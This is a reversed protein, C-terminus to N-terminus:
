KLEKLHSCKKRFHFGDCTCHYVGNTKSVTYTKGKGKSSPVTIVQDDVEGLKSPGGSIYRLSDIHKMSIIPKPLFGEGTMEFSEPLGDPFHRLVKGRTVHFEWDNTRFAYHTRWWTVVEIVSGIEPMVFKM